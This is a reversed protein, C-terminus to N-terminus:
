RTRSPHTHATSRVAERVWTADPALGWDGRYLRVGLIEGKLVFVRYESLFEMVPSTWIPTDSELTVVSRRSAEGGDWVFGTFLKHQVPKIFINTGIPLARVWGLERKAIDRHLWDKLVAPYDLPPPIKKKIARLATHIDDVFGHVGVEPGIDNLLYLDGFGHFPATEIGLQRFGDLAAFCNQNDPVDDRYRIYIKRLEM